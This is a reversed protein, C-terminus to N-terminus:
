VVRSAHRRGNWSVVRELLLDVVHCLTGVLEWSFVNRLEFIHHTKIRNLKWYETQVCMVCSYVDIDNEVPM